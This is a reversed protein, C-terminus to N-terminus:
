SSSRTTPSRVRTDRGVTIAGILEEDLLIPVGLLARYGVIQQAGYSYEPDALVDPIQESARSLAVRGIVTKRDAVHPHEVSYEFAAKLDGSESFIVFLDGDAMYLQAHEGDCLRKAADVVEDLVVQLGEARAMARLVGTLAQQQARLDEVQRGLEVADKAESRM